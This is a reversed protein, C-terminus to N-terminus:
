GALRALEARAWATLQVPSVPTRGGAFGALDGWFHDGREAVLADVALWARAYVLTLRTQDGATGGGFEGADPIAFSAERGAYAQVLLAKTAALRAGTLAVHDALGESAWTPLTGSMGALAAHVAEHAILIVRDPSAIRALTAPNLVIREAGAAGAVGERQTLGGIVAEDAPNSATLGGFQPSTAPVEITVRRNWGPALQQLGAPAVRDVASAAEAAVEPAGAALLLCARRSGTETLQSSYWLPTRVGPELAEIGASDVAIGLEDVAATADCATRTEVRLVPTGSGPRESVVAQLASLNSWLREALPRQSHAFAALFANRDASSLAQSLRGISAQVSAQGGQCGAVLTCMLALAAGFLAVKLRVPM